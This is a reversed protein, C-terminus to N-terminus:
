NMFTYVNKLLKLIDATCISRFPSTVPVSVGNSRHTQTFYKPLFTKAPVRKKKKKKKKPFKQVNKPLKPVIRPVNQSMKPANQFM